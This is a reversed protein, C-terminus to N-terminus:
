ENVKFEISCGPATRRGKESLNVHTEAKISRVTTTIRSIRNFLAGSCAMIAMVQIPKAETVLLTRNIDM